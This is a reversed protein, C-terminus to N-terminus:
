NIALTAVTGSAFKVKLDSDTSDLYIVAGTSPSVPESIEASFAIMEDTSITGAVNVVGSTSGPVLDITGVKGVVENGHVAIYGGRSTASSGGGTLYISKNDTGDATDTSIHSSTADLTLKGVGSVDSSNFDWHSNSEDWLLRVSPGARFTMDYANAHSPGNLVINAGSATVSSGGSIEMSLTTSGRAILPVGTLTNGEVSWTSLNDDYYLVYSGAGKRFGIDYAATAHSNGFLKLVMGVTSSSGSSLSLEGSDNSRHIGTDSSISLDGVGSLNNGEFHWTGDSAVSGRVIGTTTTTNAATYFRLHTAANMHSTGGGIQVLNQTATSQALLIAAPIEATNYHPVAIRAAKTTSDTITSGTSDAGVTLSVANGPGVRNIATGRFDWTNAANAFGLITTGDSRFSM